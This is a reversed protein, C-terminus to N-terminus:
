LRNRAAWQDAQRLASARSPDAVARIVGFVIVAAAMIRLDRLCIDVTGQFTVGLIGVPLTGVIVFWGMRAEPGKRYESRVTSILRM